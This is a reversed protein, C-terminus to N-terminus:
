FGIHKFLDQIPVLVGTSGNTKASVIPQSARRYENAKILRRLEDTKVIVFGIGKSTAIAWYEAKTTNIGSPRQDSRDTKSFQYTEVYINGTEHVRRDTKVEVKGTLGAKVLQEGIQGFALDMDFDPQYTM